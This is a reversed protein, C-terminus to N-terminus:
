TARVNNFVNRRERPTVLATFPSEKRMADAIDSKETMIQLLRPLPGSLLEAWRDHYPRGHANVARLKALRARASSLLGPDRILRSAVLEHLRLSRLAPLDGRSMAHYRTARARGEVTVLGRARLTGLRRSLSPQSLHRSLQQRLQPSSLGDPAASLLDVIEKHLQEM